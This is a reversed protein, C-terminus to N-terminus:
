EENKNKNYLMIEKRDMLISKINLISSFTNELERVILILM